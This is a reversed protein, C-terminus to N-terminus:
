VEGEPSERDQRTVHAIAAAEDHFLVPVAESHTRVVRQVQMKGVPTLVLIAKCRFRTAFADTHRVVSQHLASDTSMPADRWDLLIGLEELQLSALAKDCERLAQVAQAVSEFPTHTRILRVYRSARFLQVVFHCGRHLTSM